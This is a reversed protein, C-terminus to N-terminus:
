PFTSFHRATMYRKDVDTISEYNINEFYADFTAAIQDKTIDFATLYEMFKIFNGASLEGFTITDTICKIIEQINVIGKWEQPPPVNETSFVIAYNDPSPKIFNTIINHKKEKLVYSVSYIRNKTFQPTQSFLEYVGADDKSVITEFLGVLDDQGLQGM